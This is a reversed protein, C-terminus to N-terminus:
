LPKFYLAYWIYCIHSNVRLHFDGSIQRLGGFVCVSVSVSRWLRSDGWDSGRWLLQATILENQMWIFFSKDAIPFVNFDNRSNRGNSIEDSCRIDVFVWTHMELFMCVYLLPMCAGVCLYVFVVHQYCCWDTRWNDEFLCMLNTRLATHIHYGSLSFCSMHSIFSIYVLRLCLDWWDFVSMQCNKGGPGKDLHYSYSVQCSTIPNFSFFCLLLLYLSCKISCLGVEASQPSPHCSYLQM